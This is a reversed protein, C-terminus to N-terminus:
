VLRVARVRGCVAVYPWLEMAFSCRVMLTPLVVRHTNLTASIFMEGDCGSCQATVRLEDSQQLNVTSWRHIDDGAHQNFSADLSLGPKLGPVAVAPVNSNLDEGVLRWMCASKWLAPADSFDIESPPTATFGVYMGSETDPDDDEIRLTYSREGSAARAVPTAGCVAAMGSMLPNKRRVVAGDIVVNSSVGDLGGPPKFWGLSSAMGSNLAPLAEFRRQSLTSAQERPGGSIKLALAHTDLAAARGLSPIVFRGLFEVSAASHDQWAVSSGAWTAAEGWLRLFLHSVARLHISNITCISIIQRYEDETLSPRPEDVDM